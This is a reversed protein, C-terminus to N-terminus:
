SPCGREPSASLIEEVRHCVVQRGDALGRPEPRVSICRQEAWDCRAAFACHESRESQTPPLGPIPEIRGGLGERGPVAKLLADTYPHAPHEFVAESAGVEVVRGGYMVAVRDCYRGIARLDHSLLVMSTQGQGCHSVLLDLIQGRISADLSATPEDAILLRPSRAIAMAISVRQAMGGSLEHPYSRAVRRIDTLGVRSLLGLLEDESVADNLAAAMQHKIRMTPDLTGIPDQFIYGIESRRLNRLASDDLEFISQGSIRLDGGSREASPPLLRGIALGLTSKGSGSEGVIGLKEGPMIALTAGDLARVRGRRTRYEIVLEDVEVLAVTPANVM